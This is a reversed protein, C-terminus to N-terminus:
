FNLYLKANTSNCIWLTSSSQMSSTICDMEAKLMYLILMTYCIQTCTCRVIKITKFLQWSSIFWSVPALAETISLTWSALWEYLKTIHGFLAWKLVSLVVLINWSSRSYINLFNSWFEWISTATSNNWSWDWNVVVYNYDTPRWAYNNLIRDALVQFQFLSCTLPIMMLRINM